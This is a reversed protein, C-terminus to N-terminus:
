FIKSILGNYQDWHINLLITFYESTLSSLPIWKYSALGIYYLDSRFKNGQIFQLMAKIKYSSDLIAMSAGLKQCEGYAQYWNSNNSYILFTVDNIRFCSHPSPMRKCVRNDVFFFMPDHQHYFYNMDTYIQSM